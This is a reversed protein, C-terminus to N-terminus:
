NNAAYNAGVIAYEKSSKDDEYNFNDCAFNYNLNKNQGWKIYVLTFFGHM